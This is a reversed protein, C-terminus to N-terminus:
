AKMLMLTDFKIARKNFVLINIMTYSNFNRTLIYHSAVLYRYMVLSQNLVLLSLM